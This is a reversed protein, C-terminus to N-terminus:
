QPAELKKEIEAFIENICNAESKPDRVLLGKPYGWSGDSKNPKPRETVERWRYTGADKSDAVITVIMVHGNSFEDLVSDQIGGFSTNGSGSYRFVIKKIQGTAKTLNFTSNEVEIDMASFRAKLRTELEAQGPFSTKSSGPAGESSDAKPRRLSNDYVIYNLIDM